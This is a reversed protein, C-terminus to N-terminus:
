LGAYSRRLVEVCLEQLLSWGPRPIAGLGEPAAQTALRRHVSPDDPLNTGQKPVHVRRAGLEVDLTESTWSRPSRITAAPLIRARPLALPASVSDGKPKTISKRSPLAHAPEHRGRHSRPGRLRRAAPAARHRLLVDRYCRRLRRSEEVPAIHRRPKLLVVRVDNPVRGLVVRIDVDVTLPARLDRPVPRSRSRCTNSPSRTSGSSNM